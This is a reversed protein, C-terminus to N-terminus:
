VSIILTEFELGIGLSFRLFTELELGIGLSEIYLSLGVRLGFVSNNCIIHFMRLEFLAM